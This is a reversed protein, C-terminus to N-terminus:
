RGMRRYRGLGIFLGECLRQRHIRALMAMAKLSQSLRGRFRSGMTTRFHEVLFDVFGRTKPELICEPM